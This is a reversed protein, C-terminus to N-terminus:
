AAQAEDFYRGTWSKSPINRSIMIHLERNLRSAEDTSEARAIKAAQVERFIERIEEPTKPESHYGM